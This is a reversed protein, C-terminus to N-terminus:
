TLLLTGSTAAVPTAPSASVSFNAANAGGITIAGLTLAGAGTNQITFSKTITNGVLAAGFSTNDGAIPTTDGDPITTANGQINIESPTQTVRVDDIDINGNAKTYTWRIYRTTANLSLTIDDCDTTITTAGSATGYRGLNTYTTNDSSQEVLLSSEGSMTQKKLKFILQGPEADIFLVIRDNTADFTEANSGTCASASTRNTTSTHTWGTVTVTDWDSTRNVPLTAQGWTLASCLLTFLLLRLKMIKFIITLNPNQALVISNTCLLYAKPICVYAFNDYYWRKLM